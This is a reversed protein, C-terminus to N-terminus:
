PLPTIAGATVSLTHYEGFCRAGLRYCELCIAFTGGECDACRYWSDDLTTMCVDCFGEEDWFQNPFETPKGVAIIM